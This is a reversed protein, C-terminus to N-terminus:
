QGHLSCHFVSWVHFRDLDHELALRQFGRVARGPAQLEIARREDPLGHALM